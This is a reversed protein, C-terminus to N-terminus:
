LINQMSMANKIQNIIIQAVDAFVNEINKDDMACTLHTYIKRNKQNITEFTIKIFDTTQDFDNPNGDYDSFAPCITIALDHLKKRYLDTKNLFLIVATENFHNDNITKDFLELADTMYNKTEDEFMMENYSAIAVVFIIARVDDFCRIWKKRESKQGGVDFIHFNVNNIKFHKQIIGTTRNRVSVIDIKNPEYNEATIRDLDNWFYETTEDLIKKKHHKRFINDLRKDNEWIYKINSATEKNLPETCDCLKIMNISEQLEENETPQSLYYKIAAQMQSIIQTYLHYKFVLIDTATFGKGHLWTLQKFITSKGSGGPGLFLLKTLSNDYIENQTMHKNIAKSTSDNQQSCCPGM